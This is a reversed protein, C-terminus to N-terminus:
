LLRCALPSPPPSVAFSENKVFVQFVLLQLIHYTAMWAPFRGFDSLDGWGLRILKERDSVFGAHCEGSGRERREKPPAM